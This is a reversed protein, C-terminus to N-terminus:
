GTRAAMRDLADRLLALQGPESFRHGAGKVLSLEVDTSALCEATRTATQWPVEGDQMGHLLHVPCTIDLGGRLRLNDRGDTILHWPYKVPEDSYPNPLAIVGEAEICRRQDDSFEAWLLDETFDPAAAIGILGAVRDPRALAVNLMLWGGLSSGVLIQPGETLADLAALCDSTWSSINGDLFEGSSLGHGRYDFRLCSRGADRAWSEVELAKTGEMDSGHGCLFTVGTGRGPLQHYALSEGGGIGLYDAQALDTM